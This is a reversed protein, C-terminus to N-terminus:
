LLYVLVNDDESGNLLVQSLFRTFLVNGPAGVGGQGGGGVQPGGGLLQRPHLEVQEPSLNEPVQEPFVKFRRM